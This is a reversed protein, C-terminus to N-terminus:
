RGVLGMSHIITDLMQDVATVVRASANYAHQFKIMNTMEEDVSVGSVSQRFNDIQNLLKEQNKVMRDSQQGQVGLQGTMARFYEDTTGVSLVLQKTPSAGAFDVSVSRVQGMMLALDGNGQVVHKVGSTDQYTRLSAGINKVDQLIPDNVRINAATFTATGDSTKFFPPAKQAPDQLGYGFQHLDNIGNFTILSGAPVVNGPPMTASGKVYTAGNPLTVDFPMTAAGALSYDSPIAVKFKGNVLGNVMGDLYTQYQGAVGLSAILGKLEGGAPTVDLAGTAPNTVTIPAAANNADLVTRGGSQLSYFSGAQTVKVDIIKSLKDVLLDRQDLLDNPKDGVNEVLKIQRNLDSIQTIYSNAEQVKISINGTLDNTLDSLTKATYNITEALEIGSQRLVARATLNTSDPDKSLTDWSNFFKTLVSSLGTQSPENIIAELKKIADNRVSWEGMTQNENRYQADLFQERVRGIDKVTVGTGMQGAELSKNTGPYAYPITAQLDVRQRSYGETNANAINHGTVQLGIQQSLVGRKAIELGFFTSRM